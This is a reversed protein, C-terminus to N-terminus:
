AYREITFIGAAGCDLVKRDGINMAVLEDRSMDGREPFSASVLPQCDQNADVADFDALSNLQKGIWSQTDAPDGDTVRWQKLQHAGNCLPSYAPGLKSPKGHTCITALDPACITNPNIWGILSWGFGKARNVLHAALYEPTMYQDIFPQSLEDFTGDPRIRRTGKISWLVTIGINGWEEYNVNSELISDGNALQTRIGSELDQYRKDYDARWLDFLFEGAGNHYASKYPGYPVSRLPAPGTHAEIM